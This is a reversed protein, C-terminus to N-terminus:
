LKQISTKIKMKKKSNISYNTSSDKCLFKEFMYINYFTKEIIYIQM